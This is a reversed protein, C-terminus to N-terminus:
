QFPPCRYKKNLRILFISGRVCLEICMALWAGKLGLRRSMVFALPIRIAWMSLLNMMSSSLTDGLGKFVGNAVISAGYLPEAFAEIRLVQTGLSRVHIDSSLIAIMQPAFIYMLIGMITMAATGVGILLWSFQRTLDKRGAGYSQGVLTTAAIGIGYGPMYCLSEATISFSNAAIAITGIPAVIATFAVYASGSIVSECALPLSISASKKLEEITFSEHEGSRLHLHETRILLVYLMMLGSFGESVITALAAGKVGLGAGPAAWGFFRFTGSPFIFFANLFLNLICTLSNLVAPVTMNGGCQLMGGAVYNMVQLPLGSSLIAFYATAAPRISEEGGLWAPLRPSIALGAFMFLFGIILSILIGHRVLIRAQRYDKGGMAHAVQVTYGSAAAACLGGILWTTSAVLGISASAMAGLKGVMSADAYSLVISTVQAMIAPTSFQWILKLQQQRSLPVQDRIPALPDKIM